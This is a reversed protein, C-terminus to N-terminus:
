RVPAFGSKAGSESLQEEVHTQFAAAQDCYKKVTDWNDTISRSMSFYRNTIKQWYKKGTPKERKRVLRSRNPKTSLYAMLQDACELDNRIDPDAQAYIAAVIWSEICKSPICVLCAASCEMPHLWGQVVTRLANVTDTAPPCPYACPLDEVRPTTIGASAYSKEAVDADLHIITLTFEAMVPNLLLSPSPVTAVQRCWDYVGRWGQRTVGFVDSPELTTAIFSNDLFASLAAKLVIADTPGEVVLAIRPDSM